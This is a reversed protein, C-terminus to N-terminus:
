VLYLCFKQELDFELFLLTALSHSRQPKRSITDICNRALRKTSPCQKKTPYDVSRLSQCPPQCNFRAGFCKFTHYHRRHNLDERINDPVQPNTVVPKGLAADTPALMVALLGAEVPSFEPFLLTSIGFGLLITLPLGVALLRWPLRLSNKLVGLNANAADTFLILALTLEVITKLNESTVNFQLIGLGFPGLFLGM